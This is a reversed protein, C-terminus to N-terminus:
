RVMMLYVLSFQMAAVVAIATCAIVLWQTKSVSTSM